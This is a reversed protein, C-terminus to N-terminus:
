PLHRGVWGILHGLREPVSRRLPAQPLAAAIRAFEDSPASGVLSLTRQGDQWAAGRPFGDWQWGEVRRLRLPHAAPPLSGTPLAGPQIFLSLDQLGDTYSFQVVTAGGAKFSTASEPRYGERLTAPLGLGAALTAAEAGNYWRQTTRAAARGAPERLEAATPTYPARLETFAISREVKGGADYSERALILGTARDVAWREALQGGARRELRVTTADRDLVRSGGEGVVRYKTFLRPLDDPSEFGALRAQGRSVPGAPVRTVSRSAGSQVLVSGSAPGPPDPAEIVLHTGDGHVVHLVADERGAAGVVTVSLTGAYGVTSAAEAALTVLAEAAADTGQDRPALRPSAAQARGALPGAALTLAVLLFAWRAVRM